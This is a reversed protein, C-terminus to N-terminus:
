NLPRWKSVNSTAPGSNHANIFLHVQANATLRHHGFYLAMCKAFKLSLNTSNICYCRDFMKELANFNALDRPLHKLGRGEAETKLMERPVRCLN